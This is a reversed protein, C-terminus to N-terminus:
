QKKIVKITKVTDGATVNVIYAGDSLASMDLRAETANPQVSMVQQGLLNFVTVTTIDSSYTMNLVDKVPNPHYTFAKMDFNNRDLAVDVLVAFVEESTCEGMTLTAYYTSGSMVQTAAPLPNTGAAADEQSAYWMVTGEGEVMLDEITAQEAVNVTVTQTAEGTPNDVTNITVTFWSEATCVPNAASVAYVYLTTTDEIVAGASLMTGEGNAETYYSGNDLAPLVYSSCATVDEPMDVTVITLTATVGFRTLSECGNVTQSAYYMMGDMLATDGSLMNGETAADYWMVMDGDAMLDAVTGSGCFSQTDDGTPALPMNIDVTVMARDASECGNVTQSAYYMMGDELATDGSLMNGETAADYWMVMDGDAMLDAVTGSNCFTQTEEAVPAGTINLEAAVATRMTSECGDVTQSAFFITIGEAIATDAELAEGGTASTYWLIGSGTVELDELTAANCFTQVDDEAMPAATISIQATVATRAVSECGELTQSAYYMTNDLLQTSGALSAGGTAAYYWKVGTGTAVLDAVTGANCFTQTAAAAPAAIVNITIVSQDSVSCGAGTTATATYTIGAAPKTYVTAAPGGVYPTTAAADLWLNTIPAWTTAVPNTFNFSVNNRQSFTSTASGTYSEINAPTNFDARYFITSVFSTTSYKASNTGTSPSTNNSYSMQVALNSTGDWTFPTDLTFTNWGLAPVYNAAARVTTMDAIWSTTTAFSAQAVNKMKVSVGNLTLGPNALALDLALSTIQAGSVFGLATLESATYIWQQKTGGYYNQLPNPGLTVATTQAVSATTEAGVAVTGGFLTSFNLAQVGGECVEYDAIPTTITPLQNVTVTVEGVEICGSTEDTATVMYTTTATPSLTQTAGTLNGPMWVYTYDANASEVSLDTSDGNCIVPESASVEIDPADTVTAVVTVRPSECMATANFIMKARANATGTGGSGGVPGTTAACIASANQNDAYTYTAAAAATNDYEVTASPGGFVNDVDHYCTQVVISSTGDWVFPTTFTFVNLGITPTYAASTYVPTLGDVHTTTAVTQTTSGISLAFSEYSTGEGTVTFAVSNIPGAFIGAAQMEAATVIYQTKVGGWGHYFPSYGGSSSTFAGTGVTVDTNPSINGGSVYYNTTETILPTTYTAGTAVSAGGTAATYWKLIGDTSVTAALEAMGQGCVSDGTTTLIDAYNCLTTFTGAATWDSYVDTCLTRVYVYYTTGSMLGTIDVNTDANTTGSGAPVANSTSVVYEYGTPVGVVPATWAITASNKTISATALLAPTDCAPVPEILLDDIHFDYDTADDLPGDTAQFAIQINQGIYTDPIVITMNSLANTLAATNTADFTYLPVWTAGCGDTSIMVNVKDDTGQFGTSGSTSNYATIAVKFKLRTSATIAMRPTILWSNASATYLNYKATIQGGVNTSSVWGSTTGSPNANTPVAAYNTAIAAEYWGPTITSLNDGNYGAFTNLAPFGASLAPQTTTGIAANTGTSVNFYYDYPGSGCRNYDYVKVFYDTSCVLGTINVSTGTGDYVIQQGTNTFASSANVGAMNGNVPDVIPTPSVIVLRRSGSGNVWTATFAGYQQGTITLATAATTPAAPNNIMTVNSYAFASGNACTVKLRYQIDTGAFNPPTFATTTAGSGGTANAWSTGGNVSEEWQMSIGSQIAPSAGTVSIVGPASGNCIFRTTNTSTGANPTGACPPIQQMYFRVRPKLSYSQTSTADGCLDVGDAQKSHWSDAPAAYNWNQGYPSTYPAVNFCIDVVVNDVGNWNFPTDFTIDNFGLVPTYNYSNKVTTLGTVFDASTFTATTIHGMKVSYNPLPAGAYLASVDWALREINGASGGAALLEAATYVIQIKRSNYYGNTTGPSTNGSQSEQTGLTVYGQAFAMQGMLLFLLCGLASAWRTVGRKVFFSKFFTTNKM